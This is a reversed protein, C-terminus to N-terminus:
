TENCSVACQNIEKYPDNRLKNAADRMTKVAVAKTAKALAINCGQFTAPQPPASMNMLACFRKAATHGKGLSQVAYVFRKNTLLM